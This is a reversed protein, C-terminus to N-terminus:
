GLRLFPAVLRRAPEPLRIGEGIRSPGVDLTGCGIFRGQAAACENGSAPAPQPEITVVTRHTITTETTITTEETTQEIHIKM